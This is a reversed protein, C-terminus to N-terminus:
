KQNNYWKVFSVCANYVDEIKANIKLNNLDNEIDNFGKINSIKEVVQMLLGWDTAFDYRLFKYLAEINTASVLGADQVMFEWNGKENKYPLQLGLFEALLINNETNM